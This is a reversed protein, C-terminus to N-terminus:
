EVETTQDTLLARNSPVVTKKTQVHLWGCKLKLTLEDALGDNKRDNQGKKSTHEAECIQM